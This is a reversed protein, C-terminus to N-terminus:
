EKNRQQRRARQEALSRGRNRAPEPTPKEEAPPHAARSLFGAMEQITPYKLLDIRSIERGLAGALKEHARALLLSTGGLAFFSDRVGVNQVGLVERWIAAILQELEARSPTLPPRSDGSGPPSLM